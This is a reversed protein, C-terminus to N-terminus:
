TLMFLSAFSASNSILFSLRRCSIGQGAAGYGYGLRDSPIWDSRDDEQTSMMPKILSPTQKVQIVADLPMVKALSVPKGEINLSVTSKHM